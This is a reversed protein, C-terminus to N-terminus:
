AARWRDIQAAEEMEEKARQWASFKDFVLKMRTKISPSYFDWKSGWGPRFFFRFFSMQENRQKENSNSALCGTRVLSYGIGFTRAVRGILGIRKGARSALTSFVYAAEQTFYGYIPFKNDMEILNRVLTIDVSPLAFRGNINIYDKVSFEGIDGCMELSVKINEWERRAIQIARQTDMKGEKIKERKKYYLL